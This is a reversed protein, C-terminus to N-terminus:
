VAVWHRITAEASLLPIRGERGDRRREAKEWGNRGRGQSGKSTFKLGLIYCRTAVTKIM